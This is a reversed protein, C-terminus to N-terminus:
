KTLYDDVAKSIVKKIQEWNTRKDFVIPENFEDADAFYTLSKLVQFMNQIQFKAAYATLMEDLTIKKLLFYIGYFDKKSGRQTVANLKMPAIDRIDLLRVGQTTIM